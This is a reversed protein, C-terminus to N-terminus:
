DNGIVDRFCQLILCNIPLSKGNPHDGNKVSCSSVRYPSGFLFFKLCVDELCSMITKVVKKLWKWKKM